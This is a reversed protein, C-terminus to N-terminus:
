RPWPRTAAYRPRRLVGGLPDQALFERQAAGIGVVDDTSLRLQEDVDIQDGCGAGIDRRRYQREDAVGRGFEGARVRGVLSGGEGDPGVAVETESAMISMKVAQSVVEVCCEALADAV